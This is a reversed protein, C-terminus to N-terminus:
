KTNIYRKWELKPAGFNIILGLPLKTANLYNLLQAEELVTIMKIAKIEVIIRDYCLFDAVYEKQLIRNKYQIQIRKQAEFPVRSERLEIEMAEQYVAELFGCGLTNSVTIASGVIRYAEEKYILERENTNM